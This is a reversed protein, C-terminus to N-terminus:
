SAIQESCPIQFTLLPRPSKRTAHPYMAVTHLWFPFKNSTSVDVLGCFWLTENWALGVHGELHKRGEVSYQLRYVIIIRSRRSQM